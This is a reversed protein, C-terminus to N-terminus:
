IEDTAGLEALETPDIDWGHSRDWLTCDRRYRMRPSPRSLETEDIDWGDSRAWLNWSEILEKILSKVFQLGARAICSQVSIIVNIMNMSLSLFFSWYQSLNNIHDEESTTCRGTPQDDEVAPWPLDLRSILLPHVRKAFWGDWALEQIVFWSIYGIMDCVLSTYGKIFQACNIFYEPISIVTPNHNSACVTWEFWNVPM